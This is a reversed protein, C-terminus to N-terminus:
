SPSFKPRIGDVGGGGGGRGKVRSDGFLLKGQSHILRYSIQVLTISILYVHRLRNELLVQM